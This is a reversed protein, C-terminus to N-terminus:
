ASPPAKLSEFRFDFWPAFLRQMPGVKIQREAPRGMVRLMDNHCLTDLVRLTQPEGAEILLRTETASALFDETPTSRGKQLTIELDIFRRKLTEHLTAKAGVRFVLTLGIFLSSLASPILQVWLPLAQLYEAGVAAVTGTSAIFAWFLTLNQVSQYFGQRRDHYRVSRQVDFLLERFAKRQEKDGM